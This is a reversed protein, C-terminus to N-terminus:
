LQSIEEEIQASIIVVGADHSAAMQVVKESHSNGTASSNEEVNCVYLIPKSTLLQLM